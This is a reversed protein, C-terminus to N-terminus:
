RPFQREIEEPTYGGAEAEARNLRRYKQSDNWLQKQYLTLANIQLGPPMWIREHEHYKPPVTGATVDDRTITRLQRNAHIAQVKRRWEERKM